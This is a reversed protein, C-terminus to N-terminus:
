ENERATEPGQAGPFPLVRCAQAGLKALARELGKRAALEGAEMCLLARGADLAGAVEPVEVRLLAADRGPAEERPDCLRCLELADYARGAAPVASVILVRQAGLARLAACAAAAGGEPLLPAGLWRLPSLFPPRSMSARVAFAATAQATALTGPEIADADGEGPRTAFAILRGSHAWRCLFVARRPCASLPRALAQAGLLREVCAGDALASQRGRLLARTSARPRLLRRGSRAVMACAEGLQEGGLGCAWIAAPWAGAHLGCVAHPEVGSRLLERLVGACAAAHAGSGTLVVGLRM